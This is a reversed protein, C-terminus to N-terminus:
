NHKAVMLIDEGVLQKGNSVGTGSYRLTFHITEDHM